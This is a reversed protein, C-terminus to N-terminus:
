TPLPNGLVTFEALLLLWVAAVSSWVTNGAGVPCVAALERHCFSPLLMMLARPHCRGSTKLLISYSSRLTFVSSLRSWLM